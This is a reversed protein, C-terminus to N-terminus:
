DAMALYERAHRVYNEASIDIFRQEELTLDRFFKAPSGAWLQGKPVRKNPTVLAGAAVQAGSEVVVGDMLTARMGIFCGDELTCGHLLASHGITVNDGIITPNTKRTVHIVTGDQINTRKGIRVFNVDGRVVSGFWVGSDDGIEVDGIVAAGAAVFAKPSIRPFVGDPAYEGRYPLIIPSNGNSNNIFKTMM